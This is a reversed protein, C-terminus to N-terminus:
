SLNLELKYYFEMNEIVKQIDSADFQYLMDKLDDLVIVDEIAKEYRQRLMLDGQCQAAIYQCMSAVVDEKKRSTKIVFTVPFHLVKDIDLLYKGLVSVETVQFFRGLPRLVFDIGGDNANTRGTKYLQLSRKCLTDETEGILTRQPSYHRKLISFALIEFIRAESGESLLQSLMKQREELSSSFSLRRLDDLLRADKERLLRSYEDIIAKVVKSIDTDAVFLYRQDLYYRSERCVILDHNEHLKNRFEGNVRSNLAHNQLKSGGYLRRCFELLRSFEYGSFSSYAEPKEYFDEIYLCVLSYIAYYNALSRRTKSGGHIAGSKKDLYQILPSGFYIGEIKEPFFQSIIKEVFAEM